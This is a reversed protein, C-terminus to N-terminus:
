EHISCNCKGTPALTCGCTIRPGTLACLDTRCLAAFLIKNPRTMKAPYWYLVRCTLAIVYLCKTPLSISYWAGYLHSPSREDQCEKLMAFWLPLSSCEVLLATKCLGAFNGTVVWLSCKLQLYVVCFEDTSSIAFTFTKVVADYMYLGAGIGM